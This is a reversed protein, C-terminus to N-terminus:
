YTVLVYGNGARGGQTNVVITGTAEVFSSGGGGGGAFYVSGLGSGSGGGYYGGGGGGAGSSTSALGGVGLTGNTGGGSTGGSGGGSPTGGGGGDGGTCYNGGCGGAGGTAGGGSGGNGYEGGSGGGGGAILIRYDTPTITTGGERVDSAGGGGGAAGYTTPYTIYTGAAGGNFGGGGATTTTGPGGVGGVDVQLSEGATVPVTAEISGGTGGTAGPESPSANGGAAGAAFVTLQAIAAPVVFTQASGNYTFSQYGIPVVLQQGFPDSFTVTCSGSTTAGAVLEAIFQSNTYGTPNITAISDCGSPTVTLSQNYPSNTWGPESVTFSTPNFEANTNVVVGNAASAPGIPSLAPAFTAHGSTAGTATAAITVANMAIGTYAISVADKSSALTGAPDGTVPTSSLTTAGSTDSDSVMVLTTYTGVIVNGDADKATVTFKQPTSIATGATAGPLGSVSLSKPVGDLTVGLVNAKGVAATFPVNAAKSLLKASTPIAGSVPALDYANLSVTYAGAVLDIVIRCELPSGTCRPDGPTLAVAQTLTSTGSFALTM